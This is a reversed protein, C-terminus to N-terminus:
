SSVGSYLDRFTYSSLGVPVFSSFTFFSAKLFIQFVTCISIFHQPTTFASSQLFLTVLGPQVSLLFLGSPQQLHFFSSLPPSLSIVLMEDSQWLTSYVFPASSM